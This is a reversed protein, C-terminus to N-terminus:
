RHRNPSIRARPLGRRLWRRVARPASRSFQGDSQGSLGPGDVLQLLLLLLDLADYAAVFAGSFVVSLEGAFSALREEFPADSTIQVVCAPAASITGYVLVM